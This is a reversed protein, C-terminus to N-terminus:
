QYYLHRAPMKTRSIARIRSAARSCHARSIRASFPSDRLATTLLPTFFYLFIFISLLRAPSDHAATHLIIIFIIIRLATTLLPTCM